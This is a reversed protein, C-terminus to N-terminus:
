KLKLPINVPENKVKGKQSMIRELVNESFCQVLHSQQSVVPACPALFKGNLTIIMTVMEHTKERLRATTTMILILIEVTLTVCIFHFCLSVDNDVFISLFCQGLSKVAENNALIFSYLQIKHDFVCIAFSLCFKCALWYFLNFLFNLLLLIQM